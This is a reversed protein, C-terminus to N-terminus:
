SASFAPKESCKKRQRYRERSIKMRSKKASAMYRLASAEVTLPQRVGLMRVSSGTVPASVGTRM